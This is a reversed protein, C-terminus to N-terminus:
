EARQRQLWLGAFLLTGGGTCACWLWYWEAFWLLGVLTLLAVALGTFVYIRGIWLGMVVYVFM